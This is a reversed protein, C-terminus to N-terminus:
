AKFIKKFILTSFGGVFLAKFIKFYTIPAHIISIKNQKVAKIISNDDKKSDVLTYGLNLNKLFHCDSTAVFPKHYKKATALAKENHNKTTTYCFSNEIADFIDINEILKEKISKIPFFPHPAIILCNPHAAKYERLDQYTKVKEIDPSINIALIHKNDIELEIGSILIINHERAYNQLAKTFVVKRHCTIAVVDYAFQQAKKILEQPSYPVHDVLDGSTHVHFQCKLM